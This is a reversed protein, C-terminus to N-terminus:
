SHLDVARPLDTSVKVRADEFCVLGRIAESEPYPDEYSFAVDSLERDEVVASWYTATGKYPCYTATSSPVLVGSRVLRPDVYLRPALATEYLVLTDTTDVLVEGELEVRLHRHTHLCDIRHYPNRPHMFVQADEEYWAEVADWEVRVYGEAEPVAESAVGHVDAAPFAYAPPWGSRHVLLVQESDIVTTGAQMARVRREFPEVYVLGSPVAASFRGAPKPSHPGRGSTLSM